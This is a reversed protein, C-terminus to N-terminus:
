LAEKLTKTDIMVGREALEKTLTDLESTTKDLDSSRKVLTGQLNRINDSQSGIVDSLQRNGDKEL